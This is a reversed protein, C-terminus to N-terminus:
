TTKVLQLMQKFVPDRADRMLEYILMEVTGIRAGADRLRELAIRKQEPDRASIADAMLCVEYGADLLDLTTQCVCIHAEIGSLLVCRRGSSELAEMFGDASACSFCSKEFCEADALLDSLEARTSGMKEPMQETYFLPVGLLGMAEAFLRNRKFLQEHGDVLEALRGQIDIILAICDNKFFM